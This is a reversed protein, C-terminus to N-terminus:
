ATAMVRRLFVLPEYLVYKTTKAVKNIYNMASADTATYESPEHGNNTCTGKTFDFLYLPYYKNISAPTTTTSLIPAQTTTIGYTEVVGKDVEVCNMPMGPPPPPPPQQFGLIDAPAAEVSTGGFRNDSNNNNNSKNEHMTLQRQRQMTTTATTADDGHGAAAALL